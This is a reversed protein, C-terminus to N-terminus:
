RKRRRKRKNHGNRQRTRSASGIPRSSFGSTISLTLRSLRWTKKRSSSDLSYSVPYCADHTSQRRLPLFFVYEHREEVTMAALQEELSVQQQDPRREYDGGRPRSPRFDSDVFSSTQGDVDRLTEWVVSPERILGNDTVLLFLSNSDTAQSPQSPPAPILHSSGAPHEHAEVVAQAAFPNNSAFHPESTQPATASSAVGASESSEFPNNSAFHPESTSPVLATATPSPSQPKYLVSLHSNRFLAVLQGPKINSALEFLGHYTLQSSTNDLFTRVYIALISHTEPYRSCLRRVV